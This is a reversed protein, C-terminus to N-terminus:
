RMPQVIDYDREVVKHQELAACGTAMVKLIQLLAEDDGPNTAWALRAKQLEHEMILLYGAVEHPHDQVTGWKKDQYSRERDIAALVEQRASL